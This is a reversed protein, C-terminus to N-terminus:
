KKLFNALRQVGAEIAEEKSPLGYLSDVHVWIRKNEIGVIDIESTYERESDLKETFLVVIRGIKFQDGEINLFYEQPFEEQLIM